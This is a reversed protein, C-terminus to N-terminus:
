QSRGLFIVASSSARRGGQGTLKPDASRGYEQQVRVPVLDRGSLLGNTRVARAWTRVMALGPFILAAIRM